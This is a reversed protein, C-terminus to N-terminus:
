CVEYLNNLLPFLEYSIFADYDLQVCSYDDIEEQQGYIAIDSKLM